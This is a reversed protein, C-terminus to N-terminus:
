PIPVLLDLHFINGITHASFTGDYREVIGRMALLLRGGEERAPTDANGDGLYHEVSIAAMGMRERVNISISRPEEGGTLQIAAIAGELATNFLTYLDASAMFDLAHGDAVCTLTIGEHECLLSKETIVVDLAPNGTRVAADYVNVEHAIAALQEHSLGGGEESALTNLVHHRIDHVRRNIAGITRASLEFQRHQEAIASEMTSVSAQLAQNYIIEFEATLIFVCVFLHVVSLLVPYRWPIEFTPLDKIALDFFISVLMAVVVAFLMTPNNIGQLGRRRLRRAFILYFSVFIALACCWLSLTDLLTVGSIGGETPFAAPLVKTLHLVRDLGSILNQLLYASSSCFLATMPSAEWLFATLGTMYALMLGFSITARYFSANDTLTPYLTFGLQYAVMTIGITVVGAAVMRVKFFTHRPLRQAYLWLAIALQAVTSALQFAQVGM